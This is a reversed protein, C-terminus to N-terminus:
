KRKLYTKFCVPKEKQKAEAPIRNWHDVVRISFSNARVDKRAREKKLNLPDANTRTRVSTDVQSFLTGPEVKDFRKTIKFVQMMDQDLRRKEM